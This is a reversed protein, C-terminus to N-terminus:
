ASGHLARSLWDRRLYGTSNDSSSNTINTSALPDGTSTARSNCLRQPQGTSPSRSQRSPRGTNPSLLVQRPRADPTRDQRNNAAQSPSPQIKPASNPKRANSPSKSLLKM